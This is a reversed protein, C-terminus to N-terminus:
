RKTVQLRAGMALLHRTVFRLYYGRVSVSTRVRHGNDSSTPDVTLTKKQRSKQRSSQKASARAWVHEFESRFIDSDRFRENRARSFARIIRPRARSQFDTWALTVQRYLSVVHNIPRTQPNREIYLIAHESSFRGWLDLRYIMYLGSLGALLTTVRSQSAFRQEVSEFFAIREEPSKLRRVAPLLVTTVLAVGGIWLVV